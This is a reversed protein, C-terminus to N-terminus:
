EFGNLIIVAKETFTYFVGSMKIVDIVAETLHDTRVVGSGVAMAQDALLYILGEKGIVNQAMVLDTGSMLRLQAILEDHKATNPIAARIVYGGVTESNNAALCDILKQRIETSTM